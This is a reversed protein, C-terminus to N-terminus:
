TCVVHEQETATSIINFNSTQHGETLTMISITLGVFMVTFALVWKGDLRSGAFRM